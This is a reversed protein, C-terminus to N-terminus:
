RRWLLLLPPSATYLYLITDTQRSRARRSPIGMDYRRWDGINGNGGHCLHCLHCCWHHHRCNCHCLLLIDIVIDEVEIGNCRKRGRVWIKRKRGLILRADVEGVWTRWWTWKRRQCGKRRIRQKKLLIIIFVLHPPFQHHLTVNGMTRTKQWWRCKGHSEVEAEIGSQVM